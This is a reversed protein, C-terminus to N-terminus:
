PVVTVPVGQHEFAKPGSWEPRARIGLAGATYDKRRAEDLLARVVPLTAVSTAAATVGGGAVRGAGAGGRPGRGGGGGGGGSSGCGRGPIRTWSRSCNILWGRPM